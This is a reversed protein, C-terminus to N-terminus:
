GPLSIWTARTTAHPVKPREPDGSSSHQDRKTEEACRKVYPANRSTDHFGTRKRSKNASHGM